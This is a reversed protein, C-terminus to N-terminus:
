DKRNAGGKQIKSKFTFRWGRAVSMAILRNTAKAVTFPFFPM